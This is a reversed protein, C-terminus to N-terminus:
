KALLKLLVEIVVPGLSAKLQTLLSSWDFTKLTEIASTVEADHALQTPPPMCDNMYGAAPFTKALAFGEIDYIALALRGADTDQKTAFRLIQRIASPNLDTPFPM